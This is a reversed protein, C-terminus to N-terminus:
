WCSSHHIILNKCDLNDLKLDADVCTRAHLTCSSWHVACLDSTCQSQCASSPLKCQWVYPRIDVTMTLPGECPLLRHNSLGEDEDELVHVLQDISLPLRPVCNSSSKRVRERTRM